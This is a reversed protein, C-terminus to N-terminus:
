LIKGDRVQFELNSFGRRLFFYNSYGKRHGLTMLFPPPNTTSAYHQKTRPVM